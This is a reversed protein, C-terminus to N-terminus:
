PKNVHRKLGRIRKAVGEKSTMNGGHEVNFAAAEIAENWLVSEADEKRVYTALHRDGGCLPCAGHDIDDDIIRYHEECITFEMVDRADYQAV